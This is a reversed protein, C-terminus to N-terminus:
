SRAPKTWSPTTLDDEHDRDVLQRVRGHRRDLTDRYTALEADVAGPERGLEVPPLDAVDFDIGVERATSRERKAPQASM